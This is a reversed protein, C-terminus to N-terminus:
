YAGQGQGGGVIAVGSSCGLRDAGLEVYRQATPADRIGGSAKVSLGQSHKVMLKVAEPSAGGASHYGTSTKIFDGGSERIALCATALRNEAEDASVDKMLLASEVIVKVVVKPNVARAAKVVELLEAKIAAVDAVMLNPLHAVVDIEDAGDKVAATAEIAKVTAKATGHPFGVVTCTRVPSEKLATAVQATFVGAVCVSAFGHVMAEDVIQTVKAQDAEPSLLTHDIRQALESSM